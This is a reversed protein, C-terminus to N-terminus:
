TNAAQKPKQQRECEKWKIIVSKNAFVTVLCVIKQENIQSEREREPKALFLKVKGDFM